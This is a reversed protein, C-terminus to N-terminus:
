EQGREPPEGQTRKGAAKKKVPPLAIEGAALAAALGMGFVVGKRILAPTKATSPELKAWVALTDTILQAEQETPEFTFAKNFNQVQTKNM